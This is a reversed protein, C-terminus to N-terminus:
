LLTSLLVALTVISELLGSAPMGEGVVIRAYSSRPSAARASGVSLAVTEPRLGTRVLSVAVSAMRM